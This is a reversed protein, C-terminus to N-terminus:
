VRIKNCKLIFREKKLLDKQAHLYMYSTIFTVKIYLIVSVTNWKLLSLLYLKCTPLQIIILTFTLLLLCHVYLVFVSIGM